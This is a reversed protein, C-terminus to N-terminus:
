PKTRKLQNKRENEWSNLGDPLRSYRDRKSDTALSLRRPMSAIKDVRFASFFLVSFGCLLSGELWRWRMGEARLAVRTAVGRM